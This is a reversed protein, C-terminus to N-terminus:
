AMAECVKQFDRSAEDRLLLVCGYARSVPSVAWTCRHFFVCLGRRARKTRMVHDKELDTIMSRGDTQKEKKVAGIGLLGDEELSGSGSGSGFYSDCSGRLWPQHM